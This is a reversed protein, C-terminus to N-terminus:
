GHSFFQYNTIENEVSITFYCIANAEILGFQDYNGVSKFCLTYAICTCQYNLHSDSILWNIWVALKIPGNGCFIFM